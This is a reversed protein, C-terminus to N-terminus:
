PEIKETSPRVLGGSKEGSAVRGGIHVDIDRPTVQKIAQCYQIAGACRQPNTFLNRAQGLLRNSKGGGNEQGRKLGLEIVGHV